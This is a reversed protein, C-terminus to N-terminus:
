ISMSSLSIRDSATISFNFITAVSSEVILQPSIIRLVENPSTSQVDLQSIRSDMQPQFKINADKEAAM